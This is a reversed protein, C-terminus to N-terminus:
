QKHRKGDSREAEEVEEEAPLDGDQEVDSDDEGDDDALVEYDGAACSLVIVAHM